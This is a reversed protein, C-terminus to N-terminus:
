GVFRQTCDLGKRYLYPVRYTRKGKRSATELVGISVLDEITATAQRAGIRARLSTESYEGGGGVLKKISPWYHPFEAELYNTRKEKSVEEQGYIVAAGGIMRDTESGPDLRFTDRQKQAARSVLDIVDRPTVVGRGDALHNYIWRLTESQRPGRHVKDSFIRYFMERQYAPSTTLLSENIRFHERLEGSSFLRRVIMALLQGEGWRLTDAKRAALHTLATFGEGGVIHEFIDDRLFVKVRVRESRFLHITRLLARLARKETESRRAFIEDLRDVMLWLQLNAKELLANLARTLEEIYAPMLPGEGSDNTQDKTDGAEKSTGALLDLEIQSGDPTTVKVSPRLKSVLELAWGLIERLTKKRDFDPIQANRYAQRFARVEAACTELYAATNEDKIFQEYALSIFYICWFDILASESLRDFREKYALFVADQRQQVGHALVVRRNELMLSPLFDVFIRYLASKGSGKTGPILDVRDAWLDDFVSTEIRAEELRDDLEAISSGLEIRSLLYAAEEYRM